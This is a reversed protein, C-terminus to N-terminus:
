EKGNREQIYRPGRQFKNKSRCNEYRAMQPGHFQHGIEDIFGKM